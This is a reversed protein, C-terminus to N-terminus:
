SIPEIELVMSCAGCLGGINASPTDDESIEDIRKEGVLVSVVESM